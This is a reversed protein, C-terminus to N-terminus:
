TNSFYQLKLKDDLRNKFLKRTIKKRPKTHQLKTRRVLKTKQTKETMENNQKSFM